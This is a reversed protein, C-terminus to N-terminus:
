PVTQFGGEKLLGMPPFILGDRPLVSLFFQQGKAVGRPLFVGSKNKDERREKSRRRMEKKSFSPFVSREKLNFGERSPFAKTKRLNSFKYYYYFGSRNLEPRVRVVARVKENKGGNM